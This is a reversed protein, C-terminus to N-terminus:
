VSCSFRRLATRSAALTVPRVTPTKASRWPGFIRRPFNASLWFCKKSGPSRKVMVMSSTRPVLSRQEVVKLPRGPSTFGPSWTRISSPFTPRRAKSTEGVSTSQSTTTPPWTDLLLPILRGPTATETGAILSFSSLSRRQASEFSMSM